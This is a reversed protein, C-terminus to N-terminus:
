SGTIKPECANESILRYTEKDFAQLKVHGITDVRISRLGDLYSSWPPVLEDENTFLCVIRDPNKIPQSHIRAIFVSNPMMQRGAETFSALIAIPTGRFPGGISIYRDVYNWGELEQLYVYSILSGASAGVLTVDALGRAEIYEQLLRATVDMNGVQLGFNTMYVAFGKRELYWKMVCYLPNQTLWGHVFVIPSQKTPNLNVNSLPFIYGLFASLIYLGLLFSEELWRLIKMMM